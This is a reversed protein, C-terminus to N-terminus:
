KHQDPVAFSRGTRALIAQRGTLRQWREVTVDVYHPEFEVLRARRGTREAAIVTTGSGGFPDLIVDGRNSCDRIADAVLAVPKVTPHLALKGNATGGFSSQGPYTWVNTRNRGHRGLSVNNIHKGTGVKFVFVLEHQSRYLSGMGGNTKNWVCLNKLGSYIDRGASILEGAHRWDMCVFHIAGDRSRASALGLANSLFERFEKESMEGAAMAFDAHRVSGTGCVHGDIPVNYPPDTFVMGATEGDPMLEQYTEAKLADGCTIRHDGLLWTDGEVTVAPGEMDPEPVPDEDGFDSDELLLDIECTAFGTLELDLTADLEVIDVLELHLESNDWNSGEALKNLSLRLARLEADSLNSVTVVPVEPLELRRAAAVLGWGAVVRKHEDTVVPLVFGFRELNRALRAIQEPPHKRTERGLLTLSDTRVAEPVLGDWYINKRISSNPTMETEM